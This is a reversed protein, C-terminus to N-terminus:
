QLTAANNVHDGGSIDNADIIYINALYVSVATNMWKTSPYQDTCYCVKVHQVTNFVQIYIQM